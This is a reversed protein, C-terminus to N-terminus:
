SQACQVGGHGPGDQEDDDDEIEPKNDNYSKLPDLETLTFVEVDDPPAGSPSSPAGGGAGDADGAGEVWGRKPKSM